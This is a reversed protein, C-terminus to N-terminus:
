SSLTERNGTPRGTTQTACQLESLRYLRRCGRRASKEASRRRLRRCCRRRATGGWSKDKFPQNMARVVNGDPLTIRVEIPDGTGLRWQVTPPTGIVVIAQRIGAKRMKAGEGASITLARSSRSGANLKGFVSEMIGGFAVLVVASPDTTFRIPQTSLRDGLLLSDSEHPRTAEHLLIAINFPESDIQISGAEIRGSFKTRAGALLAAPTGADAKDGVLEAVEVFVRATGPQGPADAHVELQAHGEIRGTLWGTPASVPFGTAMDPLLCSYPLRAGVYEFTVTEWGRVDLVVPDPLYRLFVLYIGIVAIVVTGITTLGISVQRLTPSAPPGSELLRSSLYGVLFGALGGGVLDCFISFLLPASPTLPSIRMVLDYAILSLAAGGACLVIRFFWTTPIATTLALVAAPLLAPELSHRLIGSPTLIEGLAEPIEIAGSNVLTWLTPEVIFWACHAPSRQSPRLSPPNHLPHVHVNLSPASDTDLSSCYGALLHCESRAL